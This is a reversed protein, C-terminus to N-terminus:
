PCTLSSLWIIGLFIRDQVDTSRRAQKFTLHSHPCGPFKLMSSFTEISSKRLLYCLSCAFDCNSFRLGATSTFFVSSKKDFWSTTADMATSAGKRGLWWEKPQWTWFCWIHLHSVLSGVVPVTSFSKLISGAGDMCMPCGCCLPQSCHWNHQSRLGCIHPGESTHWCLSSDFKTNAFLGANDKSKWFYGISEEFGQTSPYLGQMALWYFYVLGGLM